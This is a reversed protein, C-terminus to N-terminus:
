NLALRKDLSSFYDTVADVLAKAYDNQLDMLLKADDKNDGFAPEVLCSVIKCEGVNMYGRDGSGLKKLGRNEKGKRNFVLCVSEHVERAFEICETPDMDFLTETGKAKENAANFHLEICVTKSYITAAAWDNVLKYVGKIGVNDRTFIKTQIGREMAFRYMLQAVETNYDYESLRLPAAAYSGPSKKEHGIVIALKM